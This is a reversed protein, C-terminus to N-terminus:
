TAAERGGRRLPQVDTVGRARPARTLLRLKPKRRVENEWLSHSETAMAISAYLDRPFCFFLPPLSTDPISERSSFIPPTVAVAACAHPWIWCQPFCTSNRHIQVRKGWLDADSGKNEHSPTQLRHPPPPSGQERWAALDASLLRGKPSCSVGPALPASPRGAMCRVLRLQSLLPALHHTDKTGPTGHLWTNDGVVPPVQCISQKRGGSAGASGPPTLVLKGLGAPHRPLHLHAGVHRKPLPPPTQLIANLVGPSQMLPAPTPPLM